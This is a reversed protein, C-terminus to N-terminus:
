ELGELFAALEADPIRVEHEPAPYTGSRVDAIFDQYAAVREAQLRAHEAVFDRYRKAHRPYHDTHAGLIDKSFLYQADCGAGSGMSLVLMKTRKSIAAAVPTPVLEIEVAFAGAAELAQVQGLVFRASEATKGVAKYGGTWTRQSPIMGVHGVVPIGERRMEAIISPSAACYVADAGIAMMNFAARMYEAATVHRGYVLAGVMFVSPAAARFAPSWYDERCCIIDIGASEAAAAEEVTILNLETLQRTGKQALLDAVTPRTM